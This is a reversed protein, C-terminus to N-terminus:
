FLPSFFLRVNYLKPLDILEQETMALLEEAMRNDVLSFVDKSIFDVMCASVLDHHKKVVKAVAKLAGLVSM